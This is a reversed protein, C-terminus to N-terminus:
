LENEDAEKGVPASANAYLMRCVSTIPIDVLPPISDHCGCMPDELGVDEAWKSHKDSAGVSSTLLAWQAEPRALRLPM